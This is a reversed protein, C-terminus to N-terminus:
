TGFHWILEPGYPGKKKLFSQFYFIKTNKGSTLTEQDIDPINQFGPIHQMFTFYSQMRKVRSEVRAQLGSLRGDVDVGTCQYILAHDGMPLPKDCEAIGQM